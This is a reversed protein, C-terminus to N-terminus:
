QSKKEEVKPVGWGGIVKKRQGFMHLYLQPFIPIYSLM